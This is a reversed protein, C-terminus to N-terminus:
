KLWTADGSLLQAYTIESLELFLADDAAGPYEGGRVRSRYYLCYRHMAMLERHDFKREKMITERGM